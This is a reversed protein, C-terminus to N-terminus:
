RKEVERSRTLYEAWRAVLGLYYIGAPEGLQKQITALAARAQQDRARDRARDLGYASMWIWRGYYLRERDIGGDGAQAAAERRYIAHLSGLLPLLTRPLRGGGAGRGVLRALEEVRARVPEFEEWGLTEGFLTVADKEKGDPRRYGKSGTELAKGTMGASQYLPLRPDVVAIGASITVAPSGAAFEGLDARIRRALLPIRDWAGVVFLDDGGSYVGYLLGRRPAAGTPVMERSVEVELCLRNVWGEFFIRLASSLSAVRSATAGRGLGSAFLTGLNDVDMRLVGLREVGLSDAAIDGFDRTAQRGPEGKLPVVSPMWRFGDAGAPVFDTRNLTYRIADPEGAGFQWWCDFRGLAKQWWSLVGAPRRAGVSLLTSPEAAARAIQEGLHAMGECAPCRADEGQAPEPLDAHCAFCRDGSGGTGTPAFLPEYSQRLVRGFRRNKAKGIEMGVESWKVAFREGEFDEASLPIHGIALALDGGHIGLMREELEAAAEELAGASSFPALLYFHGGGWYLVNPTALGLRRLLFRAASEALLQLYFSRGRLTKAAGKAAITYLFDQLGSIDGGVLLLLPDRREARPPWALLAELRADNLEGLHLCSAIACTLRSHDFLSVDPIQHYAASPVCWGYQQLLHYAAELYGEFNTQALRSFDSEFGQWLRLYGAGCEEPSLREPRPFLVQRELELPALRHYGERQPQDPNVRLRTFISLLQSEWPPRAGPSDDGEREGAAMRDALAILRATRSPPMSLHHTLLDHPRLPWRGSVHREVFDASWKAHTGHPGYDGTSFAAYSGSPQLGARQYLKGVDHLLAGLQVAQLETDPVPM